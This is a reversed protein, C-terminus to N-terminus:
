AIKNCGVVCPGRATGRLGDFQKTRGVTNKNLKLNRQQLLITIWFYSNRFQEYCKRYFAAKKLNVCEIRKFNPAITHKILILLQVHYHVTFFIIIKNKKRSQCKLM